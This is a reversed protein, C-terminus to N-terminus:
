TSPTPPSDIQYISVGTPIRLEVSGRRASVPAALPTTSTSTPVVPTSYITQGSSSLRFNKERPPVEKAEKTKRAVPEPNNMPSLKEGTLIPLRSEIAMSLATKGSSDKNHEYLFNFNDHYSKEEKQKDHLVPTVGLNVITIQVDGEDKFYGAKNYTTL